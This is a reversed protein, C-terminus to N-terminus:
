YSQKTVKCRVLMTLKAMKGLIPNTRHFLFFEHLILNMAFPYM